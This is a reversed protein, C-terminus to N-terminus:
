KRKILIIIGVLAVVGIVGYILLNSKKPTVIPKTNYNSKLEDDTLPDIPNLETEDPPFL